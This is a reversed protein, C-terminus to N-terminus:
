PMLGSCGGSKFNSAAADKVALENTSGFQSHPERKVGFGSINLAPPAKKTFLPTSETKIRARIEAANILKSSAANTNKAAQSINPRQSANVAKAIKANSGFKIACPASTVVSM